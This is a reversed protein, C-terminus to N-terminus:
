IDFFDDGEDADDARTARKRGGIIGNGSSRKTPTDWIDDFEDSAKEDNPADETERASIDDWVGDLEDTIQAGPADGWVEDIEANRRAAGAVDFIRDSEGAESRAGDTLIVMLRIGGVTLQDGDGLTMERKLDGMGNLLKAGRWSRVRLGKETMEFYAHSRRVSRSRLRVDAKRSSGILGERILTHEQGVKAREDGDIVVLSGCIGTEPSFRRLRSARHNDVVTIKWARAVIVVMLGAFFYRMALAALEYMSGTM